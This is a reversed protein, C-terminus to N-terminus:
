NPRALARGLRRPSLEADLEAAVRVLARCDGVLTCPAGRARCCILCAVRLPAGALSFTGLQVGGAAGSNRSRVPAIGTDAACVGDPKCSLGSTGVGGALGTSQGSALRALSM